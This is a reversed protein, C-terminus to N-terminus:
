DEYGENCGDIMEDLYKIDIPENLDEVIEIGPENLDEVIEIGSPTKFLNPLVKNKDKSKKFIKAM